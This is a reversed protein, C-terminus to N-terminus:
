EGERVRRRGIETGGLPDEEKEEGEAQRAKNHGLERQGGRPLRWSVGPMVVM